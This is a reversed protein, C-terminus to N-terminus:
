RAPEVERAPAPGCRRVSSNTAVWDVRLDHSETPVAEVVQLTFALGVAVLGAPRQALARDYFGKGLGLRGGELDFAVGPVVVLSLASSPIRPGEIPVEFGLAHATFSTTRTVEVWELEGSGAAVTPVAVRKGEAWARALLAETAVESPLHRYLAIGRAERFLAHEGLHRQAAESLEARAEVSLARRRDLMRERLESKTEMAIGNGPAANM